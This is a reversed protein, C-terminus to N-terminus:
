GDGTDVADLTGIVTDVLTFFLAAVIILVLVMITSIMTERQTPWIVRNMEQRVERAFAVPNFPEKKAADAKDAM